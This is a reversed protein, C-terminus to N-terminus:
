SKKDEDYNKTALLLTEMKDLLKLSDYYVNSSNNFM